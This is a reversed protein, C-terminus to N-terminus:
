TVMLQGQTEWGRQQCFGFRTGGYQVVALREEKVLAVLMVTAMVTCIYGGEKVRPLMHECYQFKPM